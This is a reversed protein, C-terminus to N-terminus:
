QERLAQMPDANSARYAPLFGALLAAFLLLGLSLGIASPDATQTEFLLSRILRTAGLSALVGITLGALVPYSAELLVLRMLGVKTSGLVLRIGFEQRRLSVSYGLVGYVGLAALLLAAVGFGSLVLAQFRETGVSDAVQADLSKIQPIAVEPDVDWLERRIAPALAKLPLSSRVLFFVNSPPDHWYPLYVVPPTQKLDVIRADPSIGVVTYTRGNIKFTRGLPNEGPWVNAALKQSIIAHEPHNRETEGFPEGAVLPIQLAAFYDPTINRLNATPEKGDPVPHDKRTVGYIKVEGTLPMTSTIAAFQIANKQSRLRALATDVFSIRAATDSDTGQNYRSSLLNVEAVIVHDAQFSRNENLVRSFSQAVLTTFILLVVTCAVEFAVLLRRTIAAKRAGFVRSSHSQLVQQPHTRLTRLAPLSGFLVATVVSIAAAFLLMPWSVTVESLRPLNAPAIAVFLRVGTFALAAGALGGITSLVLSETLSAQFLRRHGAGLAARLANDRDRAVSRALQLSALNVCAILLVGLVSALLLWLGKSVGGTIEQSLPEVVMGLHISLHNGASHAKQMGDLQASAQQISVGPKLRAIVLFGFDGDDSTLDEDNPVFPQFIQYPAAEGPHAGTPMENVNPFVFTKPLVGVVTRSEGGIRLTRGIVSSDSDFIRRWASWTIIVVNSRGKQAEDSSFTRGFSPTIGLVSFFNPSVSLGKVIEPHSGGVSVAFDANQLIAADAVTTSNNKLNLYHEYNDPLVPYRDSVEQITERWIVLQGPDRFAYPRLLVSNVVSFVATVAGIGLALTLVATITFGLSKRLTRLGYRLDQILNQIWNVRRTDRCEEKRKEVGGMELMAARRAEQPTVGKAIYQETKCEVHYRLEQDLDQDAQQRRFLSRLRLPITYIWHEPRM